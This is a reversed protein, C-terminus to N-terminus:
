SLIFCKWNQEADDRGRNFISAVEEEFYAGLEPKPLISSGFCDLSALYLAQTREAYINSLKLISIKLNFGMVRMILQLMFELARKLETFINYFKRLEVGM